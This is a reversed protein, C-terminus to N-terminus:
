RMVYKFENNGVKFILFLPKDSEEVEQPVDILFRVGLTELPNISTINAYTFGTKSDEPIAQATYTYGDNYNATVTMISDCRANQKQKNKVNTDIHIFVKGSDAPYHTYFSSTDDPLVDYSFEINKIRIKYDKTKIADGISIEKPTSDKPASDKNDAKKRSKSDSEKPKEKKTDKQSSEINQDEQNNPTSNCGTCFMSLALIGTLLKKKMNCSRAKM